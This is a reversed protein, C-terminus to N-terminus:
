SLLSSEITATIANVEIKVNRSDLIMFSLYFSFNQIAIPNLPPKAVM